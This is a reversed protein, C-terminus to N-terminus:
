AKHWHILTYTILFIQQSRQGLGVHVGKVKIVMVGMPYYIMRMVKKVKECKDRLRERAKQLMELRKKNSSCSKCRRILAGTINVYVRLFEKFHMYGRLYERWERMHHHKIFNRSSKTFIRVCSWWACMEKQVHSVYTHTNCTNHDHNIYIECKTNKNKAIKGVKSALQAHKLVVFSAGSWQLVVLVHM